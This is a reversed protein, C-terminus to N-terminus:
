LWGIEKLTNKVNGWHTGQWYIRKCQPCQVFEEQTKFVYEPVWPKISEKEVAILLENCITCRMFMEEPDIKIKFEEVLQKLQEQLFDSKLLIIKLGHHEGLRRDRTVIIREERIATFIIESRKDSRIYKADMGLIRLWKCLRGLEQTVLFKM